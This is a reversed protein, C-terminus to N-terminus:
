GEVYEEGNIAAELKPVLSEDHIEGDEVDIYFKSGTSSDEITAFLHWSSPAAIDKWAVETFVSGGLLSTTELKVKDGPATTMNLVYTGTAWNIAGTTAGGFSILLASMAVGM